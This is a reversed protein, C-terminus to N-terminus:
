ALRVDFTEIEVYYGSDPLSEVLKDLMKMPLKVVAIRSSSECVITISSPIVCHWPTSTNEKTRIVAFYPM